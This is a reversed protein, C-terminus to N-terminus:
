LPAPKNRSLYGKLMKMRPTDKYRVQDKENVNSMEADWVGAARFAHYTWSWGNEEFIDILDRLYQNGSDGIWRAASFEGVLIPVDYRKQFRVVPELAKRLAAKNWTVGDIKSPYSYAKNFYSFVGQHSFKLPLYMHPSVVLRSDQPLELSDLGDINNVWIGSVLKKGMPEIVLYRTKDNVRIAAVIKSALLNWDAPGGKKASDPLNPENLLDYAFIVQGRDKYRRSLESWFSVIRAHFAFDRWLPDDPMTTVNLNTGPFTHPDVIVRIKAAVCWDLIRDLKEMAAPSIAYPPTKDMMPLNNFTIRVINAGTAALDNIDQQSVKNADVNFGRYIPFTENATAYGPTFFSAMVALVLLLFGRMSCFSNILKAQNSFSHLKM